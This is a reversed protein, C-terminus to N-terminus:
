TKLAKFRAEYEAVVDKNIQNAFFTLAEDLTNGIIIQPNQGDTIIHTNDLRKLIGSSIYKEIM